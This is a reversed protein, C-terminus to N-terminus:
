AMPVRWHRVFNQSAKRSPTTPLTPISIRCRASAEYIVIEVGAPALAVTAELLARNSSVARLSGSIALLRCTM